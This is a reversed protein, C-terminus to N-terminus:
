WIKVFIKRSSFQSFKPHEAAADLFKHPNKLTPLYLMEGVTQTTDRFFHHNWSLLHIKVLFDVYVKPIWGSMRIQVDSESAPDPGSRGQCLVARDSDKIIIIIIIIVTFVQIIILTWRQAHILNVKRLLAEDVLESYMYIWLVLIVDCTSLRSRTVRM